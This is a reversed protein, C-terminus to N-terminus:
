KGSGGDELIAVRFKEGDSTMQAVDTKIFPVQVKLLIKGPRQVIVEGDATKYKEAIGIEAYSNDEFKLDMKARMSNVKAFQNVQELMQAQTADEVKLLTPRSM